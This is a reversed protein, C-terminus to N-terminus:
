SFRRVKGLGKFGILLRFFILFYKVERCYYTHMMEENVALNIRLGCTNNALVGFNTDKEFNEKFKKNILIHELLIENNNIVLKKEFIIKRIEEPKLKKILDIIKNADAKASEEEKILKADKEKNEEKMIEKMDKSKAYLEEFNAKVSLIIFDDEKDIYEIKNVNLEDIMYNEVSKLSELFNKDFNIIQLTEIPM